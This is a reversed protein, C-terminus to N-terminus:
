AAIYTVTGFLRAGAVQVYGGIQGSPNVVIRAVRNGNDFAINYLIIAPRYGDPIADALYTWTTAASITADYVVSVVKGAAYVRTRDSSLILEGYVGPTLKHATM